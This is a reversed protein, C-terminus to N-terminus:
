QAILKGGSKCLVYTWEAFERHEMRAPLWALFSYSMKKWVGEESDDIMRRPNEVNGGFSLIARSSM